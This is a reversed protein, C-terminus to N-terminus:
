RRRSLSTSLKTSRQQHAYYLHSSLLFSLSPAHNWNYFNGLRFLHGLADKIHAGTTPVRRIKKEWSLLSPRLVFITTIPLAFINYRPTSLSRVSSPHLLVPFLCFSFFFHHFPLLPCNLYRPMFLVYLLLRALFDPPTPPIM